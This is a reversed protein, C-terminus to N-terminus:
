SRCSGGGKTANPTLEKSRRSSECLLLTVRGACVSIRARFLRWSNGRDEGEFDAVIGGEAGAAVSVAEKGQVRARAIGKGVARRAEMARRAMATSASSEGSTRREREREGGDEGEGIEEKGAGRCVAHQADCDVAEVLREADHERRHALQVDTNRAGLPAAVVDHRRIPQAGLPSRRPARQLVLHIRQSPHLPQLLNPNKSAPSSIPISSGPHQDHSPRNRHPDSSTVVDHINHQLHLPRTPPLALLQLTRRTADLYFSQSSAPQSPTVPPIPNIKSFFPDLRSRVPLSADDSRRNISLGLESLFGFRNPYHRVPSKHETGPEASAPMDDATSPVVGFELSAQTPGQHDKGDVVAYFVIRDGPSATGRLFSMPDSGDLDFLDDASRQVYDSHPDLSLLGAKNGWGGGGSLVHRLTAGSFILEHLCSNNQAGKAARIDELAMDTSRTLGGYAKSTTLEQPIILAWVGVPNRFRDPMTILAAVAEELEKSASTSSGGEQGIIEGFKEPDVTRSTEELERVVNGMVSKIERPGTLQALPLSTVVSPSSSALPIKVGYNSNKKFGHVAKKPNAQSFTWRSLAVVSPQNTHFLTQAIPLMVELTGNEPTTNSLLQISLTPPQEDLKLARTHLEPATEAVDFEPDVLKVHNSACIAIGESGLDQATEGPTAIRDVVAALVLIEKSSGSMHEVANNYSWLKRLVQRLFDDNSAVLAAFQKTVLVVASPATPTGQSSPLPQIQELLDEATTNRPNASALVQGYWSSAQSSEAAHLTSSRTFQRKSFRVSAPPPAVSVSRRFPSAEPWYLQRLQRATAPERWRSFSRSPSAVLRAAAGQVRLQMRYM